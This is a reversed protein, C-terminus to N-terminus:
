TFYYESGGDILYSYGEARLGPFEKMTKESLGDKLVGSVKKHQGKPLLRKFM